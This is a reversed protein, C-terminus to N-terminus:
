RTTNRIMLEGPMNIIQIEKITNDMLIEISKEVMQELPQSWTTLENNPWSAMKINDFGIIEIEHPVSIKMAKVAELVGLATIDNAAFIGEPKQHFKLYEITENYAKEFQYDGNIIEVSTNSKKFYNIFSKERDRNTSTHKCGRVYLLNEYGKEDFYKAISQSAFNNDTSVSHCNLKEDYRNFLLVSIGYDKIKKVLDSSLLADTVVMCEINYEIFHKIEDEEIEDNTTYVFLVSYGYSKLKDTFLSLVEQYFPNNNEKMAIGILRSKNTILGRAIANPRYNLAKAAKLVKEKTNESVSTNPTFVRSVTSQSVQALNAVEKASNKKM